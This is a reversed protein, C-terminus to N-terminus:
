FILNPQPSEIFVKIYPVFPINKLMEKLTPKGEASPMLERKKKTKLIKKCKSAQWAGLVQVRVFVITLLFKYM